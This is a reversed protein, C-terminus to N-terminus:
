GNKREKKRRDRYKRDAELLQYLEASLPMQHYKRKFWENEQRKREEENEERKRENEERIERRISPNGLSLCEDPCTSQWAQIFGILPLKRRGEEDVSIEMPFYKLCSQIVGLGEVIETRTAAKRMSVGRIEMLRFMRWRGEFDLIAEYRNKGLKLDKIFSIKCSFAVWDGETIEVEFEFDEPLAGIPLLGEPPRIKRIM